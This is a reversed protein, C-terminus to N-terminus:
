RRERLLEGVGDVEGPLRQSIRNPKMNATAYSYLYAGSWVLGISLVGTFLSVVVIEVAGIATDGDDQITRAYLDPDPLQLALTLMIGSGAVFMIVGLMLQLGFIEFDGQTYRATQRLSYLSIWLGALGVVAGIATPVWDPVDLVAAAGWALPSSALLVGSALVLVFPPLLLLARVNRRRQGSAEHLASDPESTM